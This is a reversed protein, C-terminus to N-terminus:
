SKMKTTIEKPSFTAEEPPSAEERGGGVLHFGPQPVLRGILINTGYTHIDARLMSVNPILGNGSRETAFFLLPYQM